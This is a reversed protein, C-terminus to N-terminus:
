YMCFHDNCKVLLQFAAQKQIYKPLTGKEQAIKSVTTTVRKSEL